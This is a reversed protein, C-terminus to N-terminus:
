HLSDSMCLSPISNVTLPDNFRLGQSLVYTV